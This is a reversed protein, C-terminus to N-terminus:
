VQKVDYTNSFANEAESSKTYTLFPVLASHFLLSWSSSLIKCKKFLLYSILEQSHYKIKRKDELVKFTKSGIQKLSWIEQAKTSLHSLNQM